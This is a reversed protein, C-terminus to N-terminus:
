WLGRKKPMTATLMTTGQGQGSLLKSIALLMLVEADVIDSRVILADAQSVADLIETKSKYRELLLMEHGGKAIVKRIKELAEAAFPKDTAILIKKMGKKRLINRMM